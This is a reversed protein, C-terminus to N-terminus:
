LAKCSAKSATNLIKTIKEQRYARYRKLENKGKAITCHFLKGEEATRESSRVMKLDIM